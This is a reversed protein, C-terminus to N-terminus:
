SKRAHVCQRIVSTVLVITPDSRTAGPEGKKTELDHVAGEWMKDPYTSKAKCWGYRAPTRVGGRIVQQQDFFVCQGCPTSNM